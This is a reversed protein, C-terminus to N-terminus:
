IDPTKNKVIQSHGVLCTINLLYIPFLGNKLTIACKSISYEVGDSRM